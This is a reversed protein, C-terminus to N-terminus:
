NNKLQNLLYNIDEALKNASLNPIEIYEFVLDAQPTYKKYLDIFINYDFTGNDITQHTDDIGNNNHLHYSLIRRNLNKITYEYDYGNLNMHGIDILASLNYDIIFDIYERNNFIPAGQTPLGLTEVLLTVGYTKCMQNLLLCNEKANAQKSLRDAEEIFCNNSHFVISSSGFEGCLKLTREWNEILKQYEFSFKVATPEAKRMPSHFTSPLAGFVQYLSKLKKEELDNIEFTFYEVGIKNKLIKITESILQYNDNGNLITSIYCKRM